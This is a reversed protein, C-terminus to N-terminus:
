DNDQYQKVVEENDQFANVISGNKQYYNRWLKEPKLKQTHIKSSTLNGLSMHPREENYLMVVFNLVEKGEELNSVNYSCLYENKIIGNVREAIANDRPDSTQTMSIQISNEELIKVYENSCYQLGRDSHHYLYETQETSELAMKLAKVTELSLLTEAVNYGVIKRSYADTIFSIYLFGKDIRWYTIDSVWLQNPRCPVMGKILNPFKRYMHFSNTTSIRRRYRKVLLGENSLLEFLADRGIKICHELLFPQLMEYIKRTGIYRHDRRINLVERILLGHEISLTEMHWWHQYYAQRTTGLIRCIRALGIRAYRSKIERIM